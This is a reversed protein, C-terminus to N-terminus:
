PRLGFWPTGRPCTWVCRLPLSWPSWVAKLPYGGGELAERAELTAEQAMEQGKAMLEAGAEDGMRQGKVTLALGRLGKLTLDMAGGILVGEASNRMRNMWEPDQPDTALAETLLPIAYENQEAFASLNPDSPDFVIADAFAGNVAAGVLGTLGTLKRAGAFGALFQTTSSTFRGLGTVPEKVVELEYGDGAVTPDGGFLSDTDGESEELSKLRVDLNGERDLIQLRSPIGWEDLKASMSRDASELADVTENVAEQVGHAAGQAMDAIGHAIDSPEVVIGPRRQGHINPDFRQQTAEPTDQPSATPAAPNLIIAAAGEGFRADFKEALDPHARLYAIDGSTPQPNGAQASDPNDQPAKGTDTPALYTAAAGEGFHADFKGAKEPHSRLYAIDKETPQTQIM